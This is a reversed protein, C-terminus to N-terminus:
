FWCINGALNTFSDILFLKGSEEDIEYIRLSSGQATVLNPLKNEDTSIHAWTSYEAGYNGDFVSLLCPHIPRSSPLKPM